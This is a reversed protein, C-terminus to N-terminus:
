LALTQKILTWTSNPMKTGMVEIVHSSLVSGIHGCQELTLGNTLGYLFGAAYLDGAGTKDRPVCTEVVGIKYRQGGKGAILSGQAGIKVVVTDCQEAMAELAQEPDLGTYSKAEQENALIINVYDHVLRRMLERNDDIVNYSAFDLAVVMGAQKALQMAREILPENYFLYGEIFLAKYGQFQEPKLDEATMTSSAGLYTAFTREFDPSVFAIACGTPVENNTILNTQIGSQHQDQGFLQGMKDNGICGIFGAKGGLMAVGNAANAASGGATLTQPLNAIDKLLSHHRENDIMLMSAKPHGIKELVSDSPIDVMIDMLAAGISLVM